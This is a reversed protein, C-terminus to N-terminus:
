VAVLGQNRLRRLLNKVEEAAQSDAVEFEFVLHEIIRSWMSGKALM